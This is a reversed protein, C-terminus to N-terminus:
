DFLDALVAFHHPTAADNVDDTGRIGSMFLTLTSFNIGLPKEFISIRKKEHARTSFYIARIAPM